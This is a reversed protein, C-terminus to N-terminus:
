KRVVRVVGRMRTHITCQYRFSGTDSPVWAFSEGARLDGTEFLERRVANHRV